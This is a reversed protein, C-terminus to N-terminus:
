TVRIQGIKLVGAGVGSSQLAKTVIRMTNQLAGGSMGKSGMAHYSVRIVGNVSIYCQEAFPATSTSRIIYPM